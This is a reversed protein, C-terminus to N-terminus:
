KQTLQPHIKKYIKMKIAGNKTARRIAYFQTRVYDDGWDCNSNHLWQTCNEPTANIGYQQIYLTIQKVFWEAKSHKCSSSANDYDKCVISPPPSINSM